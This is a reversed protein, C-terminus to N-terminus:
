EEKWMNEMRIVDNLVIQLMNAVTEIRFQVETETFQELDYRELSQLSKMLRQRAKQCQEVPTLNKFMM